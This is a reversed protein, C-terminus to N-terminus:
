SWTQRLRGNAMMGSGAAQLLLSAIDGKVFIATNFRALMIMIQEAFLLTAMRGFLMYISAAFLTPAILLLISHLAFPLPKTKNKISITQLVYTAVEVGTGVMM